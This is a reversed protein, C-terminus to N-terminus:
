AALRPPPYGDLIVDLRGLANFASFISFNQIFGRRSVFRYISHHGSLAIENLNHMGLRDLQEYEAAFRARGNSEGHTLTSEVFGGNRGSAAWGCIKGELVIVRADPDREKALLATWMGTYGGGVIVLPARERGSLAPMAAVRPVDHTWFPALIAKALSHHVVNAAAPQREFVTSGM